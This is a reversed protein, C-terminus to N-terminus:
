FQVKSLEIEIMNSYIEEANESLELYEESSSPKYDIQALRNFLKASKDSGNYLVAYKYCAACIDFRDFYM